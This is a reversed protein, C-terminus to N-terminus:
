GGRRYVFVNLYWGGGGTGVANTHGLGLGIIWEGGIGGRALCVCKVCEM